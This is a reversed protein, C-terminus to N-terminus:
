GITIKGETYRYLEKEQKPQLAYAMTIPGLRGAFMTLSIMIKGFVTLYPTLGLSLGVTGFASTVEFIIRIFAADETTSLVMAVFIVLFLALMTLTIAKLIREKALRFRFFVIDEKGRIMAIVAGILIAFTTTKIGGGTSGPSAGIFMLIVLFFQTAQRLSSLDLTNAGATRPTVSQFFSALMRGGFSLHGMTHPNTFELIFIIIAGSAILFGTMSLVVKSHLSLKKVKKFEILDSLVIFGLGGLIILAMTVFNTIFDNAYGTLSSFEGNISGFLDFGANNFFSIAHWVGFYLAKSFGLDFSWRITFLVAAACQISLSYVLVKRFLRVIGDVNEQNLAEKLLLREKFSIRKKLVFAILTTMSMFGLGGIQILAIIVIQGFITFHTGTDVIVLGTVCTASTATFFANILTLSTGHVSSIPLALLCTGILIMLAFGLVLVQPPTFKWKRIDIWNM